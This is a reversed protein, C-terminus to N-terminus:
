NRNYSNQVYIRLRQSFKTETQREDSVHLFVLWRATTPSLSVSVPQDQLAIVEGIEFPIGWSVGSGCPAQERAAAMRESLHVGALDPLTANGKFTLPTFHPSRPGDQIKTM